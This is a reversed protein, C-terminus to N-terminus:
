RNRGYEDHSSVWEGAMVASALSIEGCLVTATVIEALKNVKGTGSCGIIDLCEKQTALSTGGGYTAVILSPITISYYYDGGSTKEAYVLAACSEAVNAVDQGMAIFMATIGNASHAGNNNSGAMFSGLLSVQRQRILLDVPAGALNELINAPIVIEAVVRKGRTRLTNMYSPKKDTDINGSLLYRELNGPYNNKIWECAFYTAKGVMNQGAADGTTYNFRLFMMKSAPYQEIDRLKGSKTTADASEKINNFNEKIWIGFDRSERADNFHFVPARQMADDLVTTKVGGSEYVVKMGRNYSAVLTGETTAMPIYFEGKADEGNVLLPGALGIPIQAVGSFHEINGPLTTPDFSYESLHRTKAGTKGEVFEVRKSAMEKTYDEPGSERPISDRM